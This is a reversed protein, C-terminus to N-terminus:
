HRIFGTRYYMKWFGETPRKEALEQLKEVVPQDQKKSTYHYVARSLNM